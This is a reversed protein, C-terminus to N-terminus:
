PGNCDMTITASAMGTGLLLMTLTMHVQRPPQLQAADILEPHGVQGEETQAMLKQEQRHHQVGEGAAHHAPRHVVRQVGANVM